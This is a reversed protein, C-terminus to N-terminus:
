SVQRAQPLIPERGRKQKEQPRRSMKGERHGPRAIQLCLDTRIRRVAQCLLLNHSFRVAAVLCKPQWNNNNAIVRHPEPYHDVRM